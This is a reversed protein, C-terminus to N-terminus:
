RGVSHTMPLIQHVGVIVNAVSAVARMTSPLLDSVATHNLNVPHNGQRIALPAGGHQDPLLPILTNLAADRSKLIWFRAPNTDSHKKLARM